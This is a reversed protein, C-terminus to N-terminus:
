NGDGLKAAPPSPPEGSVSRRPSHGHGRGRALRGEGGFVIELSLAQPADVFVLALVSKGCFFRGIAAHDTIRTGLRTRDRYAGQVLAKGFALGGVGPSPALGHGDIVVAVDIQPHVAVLPDLAIGDASRMSVRLLEGVFDGLQTGCSTIERYVM